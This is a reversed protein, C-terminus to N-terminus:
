LIFAKTNSRHNSSHIDLGQLFFSQIILSMSHVLVILVLEFGLETSFQTQPIKVKKGFFITEIEAELM